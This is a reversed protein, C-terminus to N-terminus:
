PTPRRHRPRAHSNAVSVVFRLNAKVLKKLAEEDGQHIKKALGAEEEQSIMKERAIEALYQEFSKTERVTISNKQIKLQRM